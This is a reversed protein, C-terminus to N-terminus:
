KCHIYNHVQLIISDTEHLKDLSTNKIRDKEEAVDSDETSGFMSTQRSLVQGGTATKVQTNRSCLGTYMRTFLGYEAMLVLGFYFFGQLVMFLVQRGIGPKEWSLYNSQFTFCTDGTCPKGVFLLQVISSM